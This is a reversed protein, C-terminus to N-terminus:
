HPIFSEICMDFVLLLDLNLDGSYFTFLIRLNSVTV